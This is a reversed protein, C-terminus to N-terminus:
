KDRWIEYTIEILIKAIPLGVVVLSAWIAIFKLSAGIVIETTSM